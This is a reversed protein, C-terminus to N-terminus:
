RQIILYGSMPKSGDGLDLIYFYTSAPLDEGDFTGKWNNKYPSAHFVEDGWQNYISVQSKPYRSGDALCPVVFADNKEDNGPTIISPVVCERNEGVQFRVIATTCEDCDEACIQYELSDLGSFGVPTQYTLTGDSNIEALGYRPQEITITFDGSIDDNATVDLTTDGAFPV